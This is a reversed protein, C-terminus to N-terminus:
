RGILNLMALGEIGVKVQSFGGTVFGNALGYAILGLSLATGTAYLIDNKCIQVVKHFTSANDQLEINRSDQRMKIKDFYYSLPIAGAVSLGTLTHSYNGTFLGYASWTLGLSMGIARVKQTKKDINHIREQMKLNLDQNAQVTTQIELPLKVDVNNM